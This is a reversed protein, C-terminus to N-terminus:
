NLKIIKKKIMKEDKHSFSQIGINKWNKYCNDLYNKYNKPGNLKLSKFKYKKYPKIDSVNHYCNSWKNHKYNTRNNKIDYLFIDVSPYRHEYYNNKKKSKKYTKSAQKSINARGKVHPNERKFKRVHTLWLNESILDGDNFFFKFGDSNKVFNINNKKLSSLVKKIKVLNEKNDEILLDADDDWPIISKHRVAGLLTGSDIMYVLNFKKCQKDFLELLKYIKNHIKKDIYM